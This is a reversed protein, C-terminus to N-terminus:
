GGQWQGGQEAQLPRTEPPYEAHQPLSLADGGSRASKADVPTFEQAVTECRTDTHGTSSVFELWVRQFVGRKCFLCCHQADVEFSTIGGLDM